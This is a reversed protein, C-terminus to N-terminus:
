FVESPIRINEPPISDLYLLYDTAVYGTPARIYRVQFLYIVYVINCKTKDIALTFIFMRM